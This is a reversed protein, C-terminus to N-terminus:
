RAAPAPLFSSHEADTRVGWARTRIYRQDHYKTIEVVDALHIGVDVVGTAHVLLVQQSEDLGLHLTAWLHTRPWASLFGSGLRIVIVRPCRLRELRFLGLM